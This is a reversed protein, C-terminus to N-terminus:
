QEWIVRVTSGSRCATGEPLPQVGRGFRSGARSKLGKGTKQKCPPCLRRLAGSPFTGPAMCDTRSTVYHPTVTRPNGTIAHVFLWRNTTQIFFGGPYRAAQM